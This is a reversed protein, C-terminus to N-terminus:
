RVAAETQQLHLADAPDTGAPVPILAAAEELKWRCRVRNAQLQKVSRIAAHQATKDRCCDSLAVTDASRCAHDLFAAYLAQCM